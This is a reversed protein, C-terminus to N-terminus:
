LVEMAGVAEAGVALIGEDIASELLPLGNDLDGLM